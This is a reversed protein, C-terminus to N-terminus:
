RVEKSQGALRGPAVQERAGYDLSNWNIGIIFSSKATVEKNQEVESRYADRHHLPSPIHANEEVFHFAAAM